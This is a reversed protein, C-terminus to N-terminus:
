LHPLPAAAPLVFKDCGGQVKIVDHIYRYATVHVCLMSTRDTLTEIQKVNTHAHYTCIVIINYHVPIRRRRLRTCVYLVIIITIYHHAHIRKVTFITYRERVYIPARTHVHAHTYVNLTRSRTGRLGLAICRSPGM